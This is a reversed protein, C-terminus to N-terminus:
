RPQGGSSTTRLFVELVTRVTLVIAFTAVVMYLKIHQDLWAICPQFPVLAITVIALMILGALLSGLCLEPISFIRGLILSPFYALEDLFGLFTLSVVLMPKPYSSDDVDEAGEPETVPLSGYETTSGTSGTTTRHNTDRQVM